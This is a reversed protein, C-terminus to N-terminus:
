LVAADIVPDSAVNYAGRAGDDLAALLFARAADDSHLAQFRLGEPVPIVPVRGRRLLPRPLLPGAFLRRQETGATWQFIFGPRLRVARLEPNRAEVVDLVREVYAKERGYAAMPTSHTPWSEDVTRGEGPSYAGVSSSHVIARVGAEVALRFVRDSGIANAQWTTIPDHTPQFLWALHVVADAGTFAQRLATEDEDGADGAVYTVKAGAHGTGPEDKPLRRAVGVVEAVTPDAALRDVVASGINGTAGTVVVRLRGGAENDASEAM